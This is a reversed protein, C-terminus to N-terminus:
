ELYTKKCAELIQNLTSEIDKVAEPNPLDKWEIFIAPDDVGKGEYEHCYVYWENAIEFTVKETELTIM